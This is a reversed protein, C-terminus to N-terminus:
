RVSSVTKRISSALMICTFYHAFNVAFISPTVIQSLPSVPQPIAHTNLNILFFKHYFKLLNLLLSLPIAYLEPFSLILTTQPNNLYEKSTPLNINTLLNFLLSILNHLTKLVLCIPSDPLCCLAQLFANNQSIKRISM